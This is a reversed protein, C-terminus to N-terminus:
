WVDAVEKVVVLNLSDSERALLPVVLVFAAAGLPLIPVGFGQLQCELNTFFLGERPGTSSVDFERQHGDGSQVPM